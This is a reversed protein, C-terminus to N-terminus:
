KLAEPNILNPMKEGKLGAILNEAAMTGMKTRTEISASAIHPLITVNELETLGEELIPEQEFVDLGAGAIENNRLAKVLAKEDIIPGRATNILYATQKMLRLEKEGILHVTEPFLPVHVTVFDSERLLDAFNRYEVGLAQEEDKSKRRSTYYVVKMNFGKARRIVAEGIRGMGIVGLTKGYIDGGLMLMPGWGEFKGARTFRDSEAIRRAASMILAWALDATTETLVGPTNSVPIKRKTCADVDINNFGVAYNAIVKLNPNLDILSADITDTLLCLLGDIGKIAEELEARTMVRDHPNVQMECEAAIMDLAKQPIKRTVYVKPKSM